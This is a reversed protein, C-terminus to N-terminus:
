TIVVPFNTEGPKSLFSIMRGGSYTFYESWTPNFHKIKILVGILQPEDINPDLNKWHILDGPKM